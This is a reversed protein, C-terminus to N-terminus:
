KEMKNYPPWLYPREHYGSICKLNEVKNIVKAPNGVVVANDPVDKTVVSGAGVLSNRGIIVGPLITSNAGIRAYDLVKAGGKCKLYTPCNMPHLDDTFVVNPGIFVYDGIEVDEMFCGSHIRTYKGIKNKFELVSNTGISVHDGITNDERIMAGHGTQLNKGIINGAYITTFARIIANDGIITKLEGDKKGRPPVGILCPEQIIVDKGLTVNKFIKNKL